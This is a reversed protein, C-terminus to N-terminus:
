TDTGVARYKVTKGLIHAYKKEPKLATMPM